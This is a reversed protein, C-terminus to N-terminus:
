LALFDINTVHVLKDKCLLSVSPFQSALLYTYYFFMDAIFSMYRYIDSDTSSRGAKCFLGCTAQLYFWQKACVPTRHCKIRLIKTHPHRNRLERIQRTCRLSISIDFKGV